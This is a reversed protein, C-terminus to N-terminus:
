LISDVIINGGNSPLEDLVGVVDSFWGDRHALCVVGEENFSTSM